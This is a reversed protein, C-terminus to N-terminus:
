AFLGINGNARKIREQAVKFYEEDIEFGIYQRNLNICANITSGSGVFPELVIDDKNTSNKILEELLKTPKETPHSKDRVNPINFINTAGMNNINRAPRKSLMLIFEAGQMYYKNPTANGKNWVLLNQYEFGVKESESQLEALNRGNIMLYCHTGKKLVRFLEPLYESFEIDNHEFMKGDKVAGVMDATNKKLWKNSCNTGDSIVVRKGRSLCGKPDNKATQKRKNLVGSCEDNQYEIRVGGAIIKYPVDSVICDISEDKIQKLGDMCDMNYIKNLELGVKKM